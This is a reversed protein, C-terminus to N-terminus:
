WQEAWLRHSPTDDTAAATSTASTAVMQPPATRQTTITPENLEQTREERQDPSAGGGAFSALWKPLQEACVILAAITFGASGMARLHTTAGFAGLSALALVVADATAIIRAVPPPLPAPKGKDDVRAAAAGCLWFLLHSALVVCAGVCAARLAIALGALEGLVKARVLFAWRFAAGAGDGRAALAAQSEALQKRATPRFDALTLAALGVRVSSRPWAPEVLARSLLAGAAFLAAASSVAPADPLTKCLVPPRQVHTTCSACRARHVRSTSLADVAVLTAAVLTLRVVMLSNIVDTFQPGALSSSSSSSSSNQMGAM